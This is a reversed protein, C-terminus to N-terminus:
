RARRRAASQLLQMRLHRWATVAFAGYILGLVPILAAVSWTGTTRHTEYTLGAFLAVGFTHRVAFLILKLKDIRSLASATPM